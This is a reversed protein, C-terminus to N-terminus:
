SYSCCKSELRAAPFGLALLRSENHSALQAFRQYLPAKWCFLSPLPHRKVLQGPQWSSGGRKTKTVFSCVHSLFALSWFVVLHCSALNREDLESLLNPHKGKFYFKFESILRDYVVDYALIACGLSLCTPLAEEIKM